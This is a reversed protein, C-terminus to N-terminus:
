PLPNGTGGPGALYPVNIQTIKFRDPHLLIGDTGDDDARWGGNPGSSSSESWYGLVGDEYGSNFDIVVEGVEGGGFRGNWVIQGTNSANITRCDDDVAQRLLINTASPTTAFATFIYLQHQYNQNITVINCGARESVYGYSYSYDSGISIKTCKLRQAPPDQGISTVTNCSSGGMAAVEALTYIQSFGNQTAITGQPNLVNTFRDEASSALTFISFCPAIYTSYEQRQKSLDARAFRSFAARGGLNPDQRGGSTCKINNFPYDANPSSGGTDGSIPYGTGLFDTGTLTEETCCTVCFSGQFDWGGISQFPQAAIDWAVVDTNPWGRKGWEYTLDTMEWHNQFSVLKPTESAPRNPQVYRRTLAVQCELVENTVDVWEKNDCIYCSVKSREQEIGNGETRRHTIKVCQYNSPANSGIAAAYSSTPDFDSYTITETVGGNQVQEPKLIGLSNQTEVLNQNNCDCVLWTTERTSKYLYNVSQGSVPDTATTAIEWTFLEGAPNSTVCPRVCEPCVAKLNITATDGTGIMVGAEDVGDIPDGAKRNIERLYRKCFSSQDSYEIKATIGANGLNEIIMNSQHDYGDECKPIQPQPVIPPNGPGDPGGPGSGGGGGGTGPPSGPGSGPSCGPGICGGPDLPNNPFRGPPNPNNPGGPQSPGDGDGCGNGFCQGPGGPTTPDTPTPSPNPNPEPDVPPEEPGDVPVGDRCIVPATEPDEPESQETGCDANDPPNTNFLFAESWDSVRSSDTTRARVRFFLTTNDEVLVNLETDIMARFQKDILNFTNGRSLQFDYLLEDSSPSNWLLTFNSYIDGSEDDEKPGCSNFIANGGNPVPLEPDVDPDNGDGNGGGPNSGPGGPRTPRGGGTDPDEEIVCAGASDCDTITFIFFKGGIVENNPNIARVSIRYERESHRDGSYWLEGDIINLFNAAPVVDLRYPGCASEIDIDAIKIGNARIEEVPTLESSEPEPTTTAVIPTPKDELLFSTLKRVYTLNGEKNLNSNFQLTIESIDEELDITLGFDETEKLFSPDSVILEDNVFVSLAHYAADEEYVRQYIDTLNLGFKGKGEVTWSISANGRIYLNYFEYPDDSYGNGYSYDLLEYDSIRM